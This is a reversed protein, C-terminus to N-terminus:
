HSRYRAENADRVAQKLEEVAEMSMGKCVPGHFGRIFDPTQDPVMYERTRRNFAALQHQYDEATMSMGKGVPGFLGRIFGIREYHRRM